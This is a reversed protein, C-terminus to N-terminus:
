GGVLRVVGRYVNIQYTLHAQQRKLANLKPNNHSHQNKELTHIAEQGKVYSIQFNMIKAGFTQPNVEMEQLLSSIDRGAQIAAVCGKDQSFKTDPLNRCSTIKAQIKEPNQM